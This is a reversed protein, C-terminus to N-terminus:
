RGDNALVRALIDATSQWGTFQYLRQLEALMEPAAVVLRANEPMVVSAIHEKGITPNVGMISIAAPMEAYIEWPGPTHSM